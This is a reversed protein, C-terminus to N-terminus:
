RCQGVVAKGCHRQLLDAHTTTNWDCVLFSEATLSENRRQRLVENYGLNIAVSRALSSGVDACAKGYCCAAETPQRHNPKRHRVLTHWVLSLSSRACTESSYCSAAESPDLNAMQVSDAPIGGASSNIQYWASRMSSSEGCTNGNRQLYTPLARWVKRQFFSIGSM